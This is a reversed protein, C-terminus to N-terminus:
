LWFTCFQLMPNFTIKHRRLFWDMSLNIYGM